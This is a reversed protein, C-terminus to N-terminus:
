SEKGSVDWLATFVRFGRGHPDDWTRTMAERLERQFWAGEQLESMERQFPRQEDSFGILLTLGPELRRFSRQDKLLKGLDLEKWRASFDHHPDVRYANGYRRVKIKSVRVMQLGHSTGAMQFGARMRHAEYRPKGWPNCRAAKLAPWLAREWENQLRRCPTTKMEFEEAAYLGVPAAQRDFSELADLLFSWRDGSEAPDREPQEPKM